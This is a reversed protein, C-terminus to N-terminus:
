EAASLTLTFEAGPADSNASAPAFTLDGDMALALKRSIYLGLGSGASPGGSSERGLREFKDFIKDAQDERIGAGEDSVSVSVVGAYNEATAITVTSGEPSYAIANGVLNILIQLVRRFEAKAIVNESEDLIDIAISRNQARVGLIGAARKAADVLDVKEGITSFSPAEVVELDTLDDLMASLHQGAAAINGAYESYEAKLPGALKARITEANAIIRAIPQRLVPTLASGILRTQPSYQTEEAGKTDITPQDAVLLLEFGRPANGAFGIPLLRARWSRDSGPVDCQVGDLLRWHLPQQHAVGRLKVYDTWVKGPDASVGAVFESVDHAAADLLQVHQEEDLRAIVEAAARDVADLQEALERNSRAKPPRRLWNEILLECGGGIEEDIPHIRVFGSVEEAGDYARFERAIRLGMERSQEVLNLLEPIALVGPLDGGCNEQLEALVDDATILRDQADTLGRAILIKEPNEMTNAM